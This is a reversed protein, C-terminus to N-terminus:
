VVGKAELARKLEGVTSLKDVEEATFKVDFEEELGVIIDVHAFSDWKEMTKPSTKDTVELTEDEFVTQFVKQLREDLTPM